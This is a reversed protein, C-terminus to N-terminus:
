AKVFGEGGSLEEEADQVRRGRQELQEGSYCVSGIEFVIFFLLIIVIVDFVVVVVVFLM